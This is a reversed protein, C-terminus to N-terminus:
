ISYDAFEKATGCPADVRVVENVDLIAGPKGGMARVPGVAAKQAM